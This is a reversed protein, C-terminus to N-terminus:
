WFTSFDGMEMWFAEFGTMEPWQLHAFSMLKEVGGVVLTEARLIHEASVTKM